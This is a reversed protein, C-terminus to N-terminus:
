IRIISIIITLIEYGMCDNIYQSLFSSLFFVSYDPLKNNINNFNQYFDDSTDRNEQRLYSKASAMLEEEISNIISNIEYISILHTCKITIFLKCKGISKVKEFEDESLESDDEENLFEDIDNKTSLKEYIGKIKENLNNRQEIILNKDEKEILEAPEYLNIDDEM